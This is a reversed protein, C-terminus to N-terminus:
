KLFQKEAEPNYQFVCTENDHVIRRGELKIWCHQQLTQDFKEIMNKAVV